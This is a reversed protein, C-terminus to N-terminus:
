RAAGEVEFQSKEEQGTCAAMFCRYEKLTLPTFQKEEGLIINM